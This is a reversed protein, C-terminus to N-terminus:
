CERGSKGHFALKMKILKEVEKLFLRVGPLWSGDKSARGERGM